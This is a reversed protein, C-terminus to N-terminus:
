VSFFASKSVTVRPGNREVYDKPFKRLRAKEIRDRYEKTDIIRQDDFLCFATMGLSYWDSRCSYLFYNDACQFM